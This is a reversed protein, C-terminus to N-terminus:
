KETKKEKEVKEVKKIKLLEVSVMMTNDGLRNGLKILRINSGNKNVLSPVITDVLSKVVARNPLFSMLQRRAAVDGQRAKTILKDAMKKLLKAKVETTEIRGHLILGQVLNRFLAKRRHIDRGLKKTKIQHPM